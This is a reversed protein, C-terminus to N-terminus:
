HRCFTKFDMGVTNQSINKVEVFSNLFDPQSLRYDLINDVLDSLIFFVNATPRFVHYKKARYKNVSLRLVPLGHLKRKNNSWHIPNSYFLNKNYEYDEREKRIIDRIELDRETPIYNLKDIFYQRLEDNSMNILEKYNM